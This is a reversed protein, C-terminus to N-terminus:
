GSRFWKQGGMQLMSNGRQRGGKMFLHFIRLGFWVWILYFALYLSLQQTLNQPGVGTDERDAVGSWNFFVDLGFWVWILYFALYLSLQQTLNQPGDEKDERDAVGSWNLYFTWVL